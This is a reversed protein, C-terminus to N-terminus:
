RATGLALAADRERRRYLLRAARKRMWILVGTVSLGTVVLGLVSVFMRYPLGGVAAMHLADLWTTVTNGAHQGTPLMLQALKGSTASFTIATSGGDEEGIDRNSRVAYAYHATSADYFMWAEHEVTFGNRRAQAAMLARGHARAAPWDMPKTGPPGPDAREAYPQVGGFLLKTVPAYVQPLTLSVASWAFVFLIPWLWLGGARHLDFNRKYDGSNWRVRWSKGWARVGARRAPLTLYFGVFCDLTWILAAIGFVFQATPGLALQYHLRYIFPLLNSGDAMLDGWPRTGREAGTYPDVSIQDFPLTAKPDRPQVGLIQTMGDHPAAEFFTVRADPHRREAAAILTMPDIRGAGPHPPEAVNFHPATLRELDHFFPLLSGTVGAVILFLAISLGAWRHVIVWVARRM